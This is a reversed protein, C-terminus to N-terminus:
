QPLCPLSSQSHLSWCWQALLRHRTRIMAPHSLQPSRLLRLLQLHLPLPPPRRRRPLPHLPLLLRQSRHTLHPLRGQASRSFRSFCCFHTGCSWQTNPSTPITHTPTYFFYVEKYRFCFTCEPPYPAFPHTSLLTDRSSPSPHLTFTLPLTCHHCLFAYIHTSPLSPLPYLTKLPASRLRCM